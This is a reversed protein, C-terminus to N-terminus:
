QTFTATVTTRGDLAVLCDSPQGNVQWGAFSSGTDPIARLVLGTGAAYTQECVDGCDIGDAVVTGSGSGAKEVIVTAAPTFVATVITDESLTLACDATGSCGGGSWGEFIAQSSAIARLTLTMGSDAAQTCDAGCFIGSPLSLVTGDGDGSAVATLTPQPTNETFVASVETARAMTLVCAGNGNCGGGSWGTFTSSVDPVATLTVLTQEPYIEACDSGCAIGTGSVSGSGTGALRATLPYRRTLTYNQTMDSSVGTYTSGAPSLTGDDHQPTVTGSWGENVAARYAGDSGTLPTGPIGSLAVGMVGAGSSDVIQGSITVTATGTATTNQGAADADVTVYAYGPPDFTYGALAFTV